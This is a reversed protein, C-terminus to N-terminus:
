RRWRRWGGRIAASGSPPGCVGQGSANGDCFGQQYRSLCPIRPCAVKRVYRESRAQAAEKRRARAKNDPLSPGSIEDGHRLIDIWELQRRGPNKQDPHRHEQDQAREHHHHEVLLDPSREEGIGSKIRQNDAHEADANRKGEPLDDPQKPTLQTLPNRSASGPRATSRGGTSSAGHRDQQAVADPAHRDGRLIIRPMRSEIAARRSSARSM